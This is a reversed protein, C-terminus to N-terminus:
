AKATYLWAEKGSKLTVSVREYDDVEYADAQALQARTLTFVIGPITDNKNGTKRVIPHFREGSIAVVDPDIIEVMEKSYGFLADPEGPVEEGFTDRQVAPLQLTGYSFLYEM